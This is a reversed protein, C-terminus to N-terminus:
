ASRSYTPDNGCAGRQYGRRRRARTPCGSSAKTRTHIGRSVSTGHVPDPPGPPRRPPAACQKERLFVGPPAPSTRIQFAGLPVHGVREPSPPSSSLLPLAPPPPRPSAPPPPGGEPPPPPPSSSAPLPPRDKRVYVVKPLHIIGSISERESLNLGRSPRRPRPARAAEGRTRRAEPDRGGGGLGRRRWCSRPPGSANRPTRALRLARPRMM